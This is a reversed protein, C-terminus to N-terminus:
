EPAIVSERPHLYSWLAFGDDHRVEEFNAEHLTARLQHLARLRDKGRKHGFDASAARFARSALVAEIRGHRASAARKMPRRDLKKRNCRMAGPARNM